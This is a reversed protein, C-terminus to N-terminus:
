ASALSAAATASMPARCDDLLMRLDEVDKRKLEPTAAQANELDILMWHASEGGARPRAVAPADAASAPGAAAAGHAAVDNSAGRVFVINPWRVDCHAWGGRHLDQLARLVQVLCQQLEAAGAPSRQEGVPELQLT